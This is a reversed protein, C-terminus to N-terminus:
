NYMEAKSTPPIPPLVISLTTGVNVFGNMTPPRNNSENPVIVSLVKPHHDGLFVFELCFGFSYFINM